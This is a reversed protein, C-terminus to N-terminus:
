WRQVCRPSLPGGHVCRVRPSWRRPPQIWPFTNGLDVTDRPPTSDCLVTPLPRAFSFRETACTEGKTNRKWAKTTTTMHHSGVSGFCSFAWWTATGLIDRERNRIDDKCVRLDERQMQDISRKVSTDRFSIKARRQSPLLDAEEKAFYLAANSFYKARAINYYKTVKHFSQTWKNRTNREQKRGNATSKKRPRIM